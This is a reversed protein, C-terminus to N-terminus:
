SQRQLLSSLISLPSSCNHRWDCSTLWNCSWLDTLSCVHTVSICENHIISALSCWAYTHTHTRTLLVYNAQPSPPSVRRLRLKGCFPKYRKSSNHQEHPIRYHKRSTTLKHAINWSLLSCKTHESRTRLNPIAALPDSPLTAPWPRGTIFPFDTTIFLIRKGYACATWGHTM